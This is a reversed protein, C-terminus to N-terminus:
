PVQRSDPTPLPCYAKGREYRFRDFTEHHSHNNYGIVIREFHKVCEAVLCFMSEFTPLCALWAVDSTISRRVSGVVHM